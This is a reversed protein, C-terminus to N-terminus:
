AQNQAVLGHGLRGHNRGHVSSAVPQAADHRLVFLFPRFDDDHWYTHVFFKSPLINLHGQTNTFPMM